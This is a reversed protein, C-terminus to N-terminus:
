GAALACIDDNELVPKPAGDRAARIMARGVEPTSTVYRRLGKLLPHFPALVAHTVRYSASPSRVGRKPQIYAPRFCTVRGFPMALLRDEADAKARAWMPGGERDTGAGSVFCMTLGPSERLLVEAAAMTFDVTIRRYDEESMGVSTIGLCWFCADLGRLREAIPAFDLFDGHEVQTLKAHEQAVPRRGVTIMETISPDDLCELLVGQGIMGTAGFIVVRM